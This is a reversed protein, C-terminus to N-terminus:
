LDFIKGVRESVEEITGIGDVEHVVGLKRYEEIIPETDNHYIELRKMITEENDDERREIEARKLLRKLTEETPITIVVLATPVDFDDFTQLQAMNRPYGDIIYGGLADHKQVRVKLVDLAADDSVLDGGKIIDDIKRGLVSGSSVEDRLLQGMSLAPIGLKKALIDAQTGKGSGQPGLVLIKHKM